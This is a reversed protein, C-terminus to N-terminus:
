VLALNSHAPSRPTSKESPVDKAAALVVRLRTFSHGHVFPLADDCGSLLANMQPSFHHGFVHKKCLEPEQPQQPAAGQGLGKGRNEYLSLPLAFNKSNQCNSSRASATAESKWTGSSVKFLNATKSHLDRYQM